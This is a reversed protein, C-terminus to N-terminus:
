LTRKKRKLQQSTVWQNPSNPFHIWSVLHHTKGRFKKTELVKVDFYNDHLVKVLEEHYFGGLICDGDLDKLYYTVPTHDSNVKAIEFIEETFQINYSKQFVKRAASIRVHEGPSFPVSVPKIQKMQRKYMDIAIDHIDDQNFTLFVDLPTRNLTRHISLNYSMVIKELNKLYCEGNFETAYRSLKKKLTRLVREVISAKTIENYSSYFKINHKTFVEKIKRSRFEVGMDSFFFKYPYISKTLFGDIAPAVEESKLSKLPLVSLYRSFGDMLVLLFKIGNCNPYFKLYGVDAALYYGPATFMYPRMSFRKRPTGHLTYSDKTALYNEIDKMVIKPNDKKVAKYLKVKSSLSAPNEVDRYIKEISKM